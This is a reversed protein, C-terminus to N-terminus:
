VEVPKSHCMGVCVFNKLHDIAKKNFDTGKFCHGQNLVLQFICQMTCISTIFPLFGWLLFLATALPFLLTPSLPLSLIHPHAQGRKALTPKGALSLDHVYLFIYDLRM